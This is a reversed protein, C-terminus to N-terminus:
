VRDTIFIPLFFNAVKATPRCTDGCTKSIQIDTSILFLVCRSNVCLSYFAFDTRSIYLFINIIRMTIIIDTRLNAYCRHKAFSLPRSLNIDASTRYGVASISKHRTSKIQLINKVLRLFSRPGKIWTACTERPKQVRASAYYASLWSIRSVSECFGILFINSKWVRYVRM